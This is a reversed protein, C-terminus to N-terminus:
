YSGLDLNREWVNESQNELSSQHKVQLGRRVGYNMGDWGMGDWGMGDWGMGDWGM